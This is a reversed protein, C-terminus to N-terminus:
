LTICSCAREARRVAPRDPCAQQLPRVPGSSRVARLMSAHWCRKPPWCAGLDQQQCASGRVRQWACAGVCVSSLVVGHDPLVVCWWSRHM